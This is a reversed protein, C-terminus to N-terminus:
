QTCKLSSVATAPRGFGYIRYHADNAESTAVTVRELLHPDVAEGSELKLRLVNLYSWEISQLRELENLQRKSYIRFSEEIVLGMFGAALATAILKPESSSYVSAAALVGSWKLLSGFNEILIIKKM